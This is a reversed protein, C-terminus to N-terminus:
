AQAGPQVHRGGILTSVACGSSTKEEVRGAPLETRSWSSRRLVKERGAGPRTRWISVAWYPSSSRRQQAVPSCGSVMNMGMVRSMPSVSIGPRNPVSRAAVGAALMAASATTEVANVPWAM